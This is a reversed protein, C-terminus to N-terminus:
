QCCKIRTSIQKVSATTPFQTKEGDCRHKFFVFIRWSNCICPFCVVESQYMSLKRWCTFYCVTRVKLENLACEFSSRLLDTPLQIINPNIFLKTSSIFLLIFWIFFRFNHINLNNQMEQRDFIVVRNTKVLSNIWIPFDAM